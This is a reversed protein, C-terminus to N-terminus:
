LGWSMQDFQVGQIDPNQITDLDAGPDANGDIDVSPWYEDVVLVFVPDAATPPNVQWLPAETETQIAAAPAEQHVEPIPAADKAPGRILYGSIALAAALVAAHTIVTNKDM